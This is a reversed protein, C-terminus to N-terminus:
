IDLDGGGAGLRGLPKPKGDLGKSSLYLGHDPDCFEFERERRNFVVGLVV